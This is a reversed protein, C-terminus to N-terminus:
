VGAENRRERVTERSDPMKKTPSPEGRSKSQMKLSSRDKILKKTWGM